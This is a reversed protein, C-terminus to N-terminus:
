VIVNDLVLRFSLCIFLLLDQKNCSIQLRQYFILTVCAFFINVNHLPTPALLYPITPLLAKSQYPHSASHKANGWVCVSFFSFKKVHFCGGQCMGVTRYLRVDSDQIRKNNIYCYILIPIYLILYYLVVPPVTPEFM